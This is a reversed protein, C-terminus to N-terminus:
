MGCAIRMESSRPASPSPSTDCNPASV